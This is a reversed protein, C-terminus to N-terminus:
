WDIERDHIAVAGYFDKGTIKKIAEAFRSDSTAGYNGGFTVGKNILEDPVIKVSNFANEVLKVPPCDELPDFPGDVNTVCLRSFRKSVGNKTCDSSDHADRYVTIILGM